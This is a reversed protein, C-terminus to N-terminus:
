LHSLFHLVRSVPVPIYCIPLIRKKALNLYKFYEGKGAKGPHICLYHDPKHLTGGNFHLIKADQYDIEKNYISGTMVNWSLPLELWDGHLVENLDDQDALPVIGGQSHRIEVLVQEEIKRSKWRGVDIVMVGSNFLPSKGEGKEYELDRVAGITNGNLDLSVLESLDARVIADIDIYILRDIGEGILRPAFLRSYADLSKYDKAPLQRYAAEPIHYELIKTGYRMTIEKLDKPIKSDTLRNFLHITIQSPSQANALISAVLAKAYNSYNDNGCIAVHIPLNM